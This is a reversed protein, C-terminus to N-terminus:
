HKLMITAATLLSSPGLLVKIRSQSVNDERIKTQLELTLAPLSIIRAIHNGAELTISGHSPAATVWSNNSWPWKVREQDQCTIVKLQRMKRSIQFENSCDMRMGQKSWLIIKLRWMCVTDHTSKYLVMIVCSYRSNHMILLHPTYLTETSSLSIMDGLGRASIIKIILDHEQTSPPQVCYHLGDRNGPWNTVTSLM